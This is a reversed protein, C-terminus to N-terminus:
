SDAAQLEEPGRNYSSGLPLCNWLNSAKKMSMYLPSSWVNDLLM